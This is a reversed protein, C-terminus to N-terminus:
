MIENLFEEFDSDFQHRTQINSQSSSYLPPLRPVSTSYTHDHVINEMIHNAKKKLKRLQVRNSCRAESLKITINNLHEQHQVCIQVQEHITLCLKYPTVVQVVKSEM